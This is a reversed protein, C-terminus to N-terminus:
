LRPSARAGFGVGNGPIKLGASGPDFRGGEASGAAGTHGRTWVCRGEGLRGPGVRQAQESVRLGRPGSRSESRRARQAALFPLRTQFPSPSSRRPRLSPARPQLGAPQLWPAAIKTTAGSVGRPWRWLGGVEGREQPRGGARSLWDGLLHATPATGSLVQRVAAWLATSLFQCPSSRYGPM